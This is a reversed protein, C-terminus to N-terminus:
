WREVQGKALTLSFVGGSDSMWHRNASHFLHALFRIHLAASETGLHPHNFIVHDYKFSTPVESSDANISGDGVIANVNHCLIVRFVGGSDGSTGAHELKVKKKERERNDRGLRRDLKRIKRLVFDADKYKAALDPLSDIGTCCIRYRLSTTGKGMDGRDHNQGGVWSYQRKNLMVADAVENRPADEVDERDAVNEAAPASDHITTPRFASLFRCLDLSYTFDGDGLTLYSIEDENKGKTFQEVDDQGGAM